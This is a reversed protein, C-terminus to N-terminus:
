WYGLGLSTITTNARVPRQTGYGTPNNFLMVRTTKIWMVFYRAAALNNLNSAYNNYRIRSSNNHMIAIRSYVQLASTKLFVLFCSAPLNYLNSFTCTHQAIIFVMRLWGCDRTAQMGIDCSVISPVHRLRRFEAPSNWTSCTSCQVCRCGTQIIFVQFKVLKFIRGRSSTEVKRDM